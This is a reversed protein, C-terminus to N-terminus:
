VVIAEPEGSGAEITGIEHVTEGAARLAQAARGADAPAAVVAMGIGCNFVRFM